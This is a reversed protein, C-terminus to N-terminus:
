EVNVDTQIPSWDKTKNDFVSDQKRKIIPYSAKEKVVVFWSANVRQNSPKPTLAIEKEQFYVYFRTEVHYDAKVLGNIM